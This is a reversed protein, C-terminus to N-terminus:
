SCDKVNGTTKPYKNAFYISALGVNAGADIIVKPIKEIDFKYDERVFVQEYTDVDSSPVRLFLPNKLAKKNFEILKSKKLFKGLIAFLM